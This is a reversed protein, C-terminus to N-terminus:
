VCVCQLKMLIFYNFQKDKLYVVFCFVKLCHVLNDCVCFVGNKIKIHNKKKKQATLNKKKKKLTNKHQYRQQKEALKM